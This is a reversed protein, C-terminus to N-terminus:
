EEIKIKCAKEYLEKPVDIKLRTFYFPFSKKRIIDIVEYFFLLWILQHFNGLEFDGVINLDFIKYSYM